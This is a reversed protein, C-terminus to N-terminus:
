ADITAVFVLPHALVIESCHAVLRSQLVLLLSEHWVVDDPIGRVWGNQVVESLRDLFSLEHVVSWELKVSITSFGLPRLIFSDDFPGIM